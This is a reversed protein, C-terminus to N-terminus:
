RVIRFGVTSSAYSGVSRARIRRIEPYDEQGIRCSEDPCYHMFVLSEGVPGQVQFSYGSDSRGLCQEAVNVQGDGSSFQNPYIQVPRQGEDQSWLSVYGAQSVRFCIQVLDGIRLEDVESPHNRLARGSNTEVVRLEIEVERMDQEAAVAVPVVGRDPAQARADSAATQMLAGAAAVAACLGRGITGAM